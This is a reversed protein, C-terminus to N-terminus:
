KKTPEIADARAQSVLNGALRGQIRRKLEQERVYKAGLRPAIAWSIPLSLAFSVVIALPLLTAANASLSEISLITAAGIGFLVASVMLSILLAINLRNSM